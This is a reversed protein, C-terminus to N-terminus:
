QCQVEQQRKTKLSFMSPRSYDSTGIFSSFSVPEVQTHLFVTCISIRNNCLCRFLSICELTTMNPKNLYRKTIYYNTFNFSYNFGKKLSPLTKEQRTNLCFHLIGTQQKVQWVTEQSPSTFKHLKLQDLGLFLRACLQWYM